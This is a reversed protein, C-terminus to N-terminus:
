EESSEASSEMYDAYRPDILCLLILDARGQYDRNIENRLERVRHLVVKDEESLTGYITKADAKNSITM